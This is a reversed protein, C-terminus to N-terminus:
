VRLLLAQNQLLISDYLVCVQISCWAFKSLEKSFNVFAIVDGEGAGNVAAISVNYPAGPVISFRM